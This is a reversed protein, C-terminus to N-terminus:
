APRFNPQALNTKHHTHNPLNNQTSKQPSIKRTRTPECPFGCRCLSLYFPMGRRSIREGACDPKTSLADVQLYFPDHATVASRSHWEGCREVATTMPYFVEEFSDLAIPADGSAIVLEGFSEQPEDAKGDQEGKAECLHNVFV